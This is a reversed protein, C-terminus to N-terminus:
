PRKSACCVRDMYRGPLMRCGAQTLWVLVRQLPKKALLTQEEEEDEPWDEEREESVEKEVEEEDDWQDWEDDWQEREEEWEEEDKEEYRGEQIAQSIVRELFEDDGDRLDEENQKCIAAERLLAVLSAGHSQADLDQAAFGQTEGTHDGEIFSRSSVLGQNLLHRVAQRAHEWEQLTHTFLYVRLRPGPWERGVIEVDFAQCLEAVSMPCAPDCRQVTGDPWYRMGNCLVFSGPSEKLLVLAVACDGTTYTTVCVAAAKGHEDRKIIEVNSEGFVRSVNLPLPYLSM